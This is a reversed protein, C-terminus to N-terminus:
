KKAPATENAAVEGQDRIKKLRNMTTKWAVAASTALQWAGGAM